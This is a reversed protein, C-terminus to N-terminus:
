RTKRFAIAQIFHNYYFQESLIECRDSFFPRMDILEQTEIKATLRFFLYMTKLLARQWLKKNTKDNIFDAYLWIGNQKLMSDLKAFVIKIKDVLFNDFLFPTIIMDFKGSADYEEVSKNIFEVYVNTYNRKRSLNIMASSKEVYAISINRKKMKSIEELIWGTGGGILLVKDNDNIFGILYQQAKVISRQFVIRSLTDYFKAISNYDNAM